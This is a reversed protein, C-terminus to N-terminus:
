NSLSGSCYDSGLSQCMFYINVPKIFVESNNSYMLYDGNKDFCVGSIGKSTQISENRGLSIPEIQEEALNQGLILQRANKDDTLTLSWIDLQKSTSSALYFGNPSFRITRVMPEDGGYLRNFQLNTNVLNNADFYLLHIRGGRTGVAIYNLGTEPDEFCDFSSIQDEFDPEITHLLQGHRNWINFNGTENLGLLHDGSVVLNILNNSQELIYEPSDEAAYNIITTSALQSIAVTKEPLLSLFRINGLAAQYEMKNHSSEITIKGQNDSYAYSGLADVAIYKTSVLADNSFGDIEFDTNFHGLSFSILESFNIKPVKTDFTALYADLLARHNEVPYEKVWVRDTQITEITECTTRFSEELNLLSDARSGLIELTSPLLDVKLECQGSNNFTQFSSPVDRDIEEVWLNSKYIIDDLDARVSDISQIYNEVTHDDNFEALEFGMLM